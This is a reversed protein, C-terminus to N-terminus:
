LPLIKSHVSPRRKFYHTFYKLCQEEFTDVDYPAIFWIHIQYPHRGTFVDPFYKRAQGNFHGIVKPWAKLKICVLRDREEASCAGLIKSHYIRGKRSTSLDALYFIEFNLVMWEDEQVDSLLWRTEGSQAMRIGNSFFKMTMAPSQQPGADFNLHFAWQKKSEDFSGIKGCDNVQIICPLPMEPTQINAWWPIVTPDIYPVVGQASPDREPPATTSSTAPEEPEPSSDIPELRRRKSPEEAENSSATRKRLLQSPAVFSPPSTVRTSAKRQQLRKTREEEEEYEALMKRYLAKLSDRDMPPRDQLSSTSFPRSESSSGTQSADQMTQDATEKEKSSSAEALPDFRNSSSSM